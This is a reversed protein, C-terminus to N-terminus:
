RTELESGDHRFLDCAQIVLAKIYGIKAKSQEKMVALKFAPPLYIEEITMVTIGKQEPSIGVADFLDFHPGTLAALLAMPQQPKALDGTPVVVARKRRSVRGTHDYDAGRFEGWSVACKFRYHIGDEDPGTDGIAEENIAYGPWAGCFSNYVWTLGFVVQCADFISVWEEDSLKLMVDVDDAFDRKIFATTVEESIHFRRRKRGHGLHNILFAIAIYHSGGYVKSPDRNFIIM